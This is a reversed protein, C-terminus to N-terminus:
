VGFFRTGITPNVAALGIASPAGAFVVVVL